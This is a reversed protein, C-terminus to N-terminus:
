FSEYDGLFPYQRFHLTIHLPSILDSPNTDDALKINVELEKFDKKKVPLYFPSDIQYEWSSKKNKELRRLLPLRQGHVVSEGCIDLYVYLAEETTGKKVKSNEGVNFEVLAVKWMGRLTMRSPLNIRFKYVENNPFYSGSDDSKIYVYRDM